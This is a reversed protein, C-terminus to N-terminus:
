AFANRRSGLDHVPHRFLRGAAVMGLELCARATEGVAIQRRHRNPSVQRRRHHFRRIGHRRLGAAACLACLWGPRDQHAPACERPGQMRKVTVEKTNTLKEIRRPNYRYYGALGHRSDYIPGNEDALARFADWIKQSFRLKYKKAESMIWELSVHSLATTRIAAASMLTSAPSGSKASASKTSISRTGTAAPCEWKPVDTNLSRMGYARISLTASTM